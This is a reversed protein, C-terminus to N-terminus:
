IIEFEIYKGDLVSEMYNINSVTYEKDDSLVIKLDCTIVGGGKNVPNELKVLFKLGSDKGRYIISGIKTDEEEYYFKNIGKQWKTKQLQDKEDYISGLDIAPTSLAFFCTSLFTKRNM